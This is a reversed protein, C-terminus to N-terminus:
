SRTLTGSSSFKFITSGDPHPYSAGAPAPSIGLAPAIDAPAKILMFGPGGTYGPSDTSPGQASGGGGGGSNTEGASGGGASGGPGGAGKGGGGIGGLGGPGQSSLRGAGGGGARHHSPGNSLSPWWPQPASGFFPSCDLGAGGAGPGPFTPFAGGGASGTASGGGGGGFGPTYGPFGEPPTYGGVNGTGGGGGSGGPQTADYSYGGTGGGSCSIPTDAAFSSDSGRSSLPGGAGITVTMPSGSLLVEELIRIGGAGSGTQTGAAPFGAGGGAVLLVTVTPAGGGATFGFAKASLAGRSGLLPM